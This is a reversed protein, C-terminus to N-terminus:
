QMTMGIFGRQNMATQSACIIHLFVNTGDNEAICVDFWLHLFKILKRFNKFKFINM